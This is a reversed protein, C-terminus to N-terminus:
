EEREAILKHFEDLLLKADYGTYKAADAVTFRQILGRILPSNIKKFAADRRILEEPLWPYAALIDKLKTNEDVTMIEQM